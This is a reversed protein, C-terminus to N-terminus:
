KCIVVQDEKSLDFYTVQSQERKVMGFRQQAIEAIKEPSIMSDYEAKLRVNESKAVALKAQEEAYLGAYENLKLNTFIQVSLLVVLLLSASMVRFVLRADRARENHLERKTKHRSPVKELKRKQPLEPAANMDFRSLDYARGDKIYEM